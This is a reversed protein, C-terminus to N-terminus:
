GVERLRRAADEPRVENIYFGTGREFGAVNTTVPLIEAHWHFYQSNGGQFPATQILFNYAELGIARDIRNLVDKLLIAFDHIRSDNEQEFMSVHRKSVLWTEFPFRSAFPEFAVYEASERVIRSSDELENAIIDCYLCRKNERYYKQLRRLELAFKTPLIPTAIIQTHPHSLSAGAKKGANKFILAYQLKNNKKIDKVRKSIVMLIRALENIKLTFLKANHDPTEIIVEHVGVGPVSNYVFNHRVFVRSTEILAPFKNPVVRVSWGSQDPFTNKARMSEIEPPTQFENGPCFPCEYDVVLDSSEEEIPRNSREPSIIVYLGTLPNERFESVIEQEFM